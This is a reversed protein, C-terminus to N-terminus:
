EMEWYYRVTRQGLLYQGFFSESSTKPNNIGGRSEWMVYVVYKQEADHLM